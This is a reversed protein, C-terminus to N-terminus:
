HRTEYSSRELASLRLNMEDMEDGFRTQIDSLRKMFRQEVGKLEDLIRKESKERAQIVQTLLAEQLSGLREIIRTEGEKLEQRAQSTEDLDDVFRAQLTDLREMARTDGLKLNEKLEEKAEYIEDMLEEKAQSIEDMLGEDAQGKGQGRRRGAWYKCETNRKTCNDCPTQEDCKEKTKRCTECAQTARRRTKKGGGVPLSPQRATSSRSIPVSSFDNSTYSQFDM